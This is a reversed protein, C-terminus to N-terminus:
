LTAGDGVAPLVGSCLAQEVTHFSGFVLVRGVDAADAAQRAARCAAAVDAHVRVAAVGVAALQGALQQADAGRPGDLGAVHWADILDALPAIVGAVDKDALMGLVALTRGPLPQARLNAALNRAAEPNHAVDLLWEPHRGRREFRAPIHAQRVGQALAADAVPLRARLLRAALVASAANRLQAAGALEPRPLRLRDDACTWLWTDAEAAAAAYDIGYRWLPAGIREAHGPVSAPPVPDTVILPRGPRAIAAKEAGIAERTDGLFHQHDLDVSTIVAVDADVANVADLRGGLGVELILVECGAAAFLDLAALTGWEFYTLSVEGRAADIREFAGCLADDGADQGAVRVRENYRLLHPSTYVGTRYGAARYIADLFAVTSGKGNTGAVTIVPVGALPAALAALVHRVRGLSLDIKVPHATEQWALWDALRDFRASM